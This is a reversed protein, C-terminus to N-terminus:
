NHVFLIKNLKGIRLEEGAAAIIDEVFIGDGTFSKDRFGVQKALVTRVIFCGIDVKFNKPFTSFFGYTDAQYRMEKQGSDLHSHVMDCLLMDLDAQSIEAFMLKLFEPVYYNDDNTILIYETDAQEIGIDRLTHGYDNHRTTTFEYRIQPYKDRYPALLEDMKQDYGDHIIHLKWNDLSQCILSHILVHIKKYRKYAVCIITIEKGALQENL